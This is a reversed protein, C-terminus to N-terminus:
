RIKCLRERQMVLRLMEAAQDPSCCECTLEHPAHEYAVEIQGGEVEVATAQMGGRQFTVGNVSRTIKCRLHRPWQSLDIAALLEDM